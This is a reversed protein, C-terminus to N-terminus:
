VIRRCVVSGAAVALWEAFIQGVLAGDLRVIKSSRLCFLSPNRLTNQRALLLFTKVAIKALNRKLIPTTLHYYFPHLFKHTVTSTQICSLLTTLTHM